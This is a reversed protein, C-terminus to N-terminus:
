NKSLWFTVVKLIPLTSHSFAKSKRLFTNRNASHKSKTAPYESLEKM